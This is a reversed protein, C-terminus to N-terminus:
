ASTPLGGSCGSVAVVNTPDLLPVAYAHYCLSVDPTHVQGTFVAVVAPGVTPGAPLFSTSGSTLYCQDLVLASVAGVAVAACAGAVESGTIRAYQGTAYIQVQRPSPPDARTAVALGAVVLCALALRRM